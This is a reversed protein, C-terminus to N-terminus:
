IHRVDFIAPDPPCGLAFRLVRCGRAVPCRQPATSTGANQYGGFLVGDLDSGTREAGGQAPARLAYDAEFIQGPRLAGQYEGQDPLHFRGRCRFHGSGSRRSASAIGVALCCRLGAGSVACGM